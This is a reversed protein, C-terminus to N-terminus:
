RAERWAEPSAKPDLVKMMPEDFPLKGFTEWYKRLKAAAEKAGEDGRSTFNDSTSRSEFVSVRLISMVAAEASRSRFAGDPGPQLRALLPGLADSARRNGSLRHTRAGGARWDQDPGRGALRQRSVRRRAPEVAPRGSRRASRHSVRGPEEDMKDFGDPPGKGAPKGFAGAEKRGACDCVIQTSQRFEGDKKEALDKYLFFLREGHALAEEDARNVYGHVLGAFAHWALEDRLVELRTPSKTARSTRKRAAPRHCRTPPWTVSCGPM